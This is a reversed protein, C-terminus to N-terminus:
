AAAQPRRIRGGSDRGQQGVRRLNPEPSSGVPLVLLERRGSPGHHSVRMLSGGRSPPSSGRGRRKAALSIRDKVRAPRQRAHVAHEWEPLFTDEHVAIVEVPEILGSGRGARCGDCHEALRTDPAAALAPVLPGAFAAALRCRGGDREQRPLRCAANRIEAGHRPPPVCTRLATAETLDEAASPGHARAWRRNGDAFDATHRPREGPPAGMHDSVPATWGHTVSM